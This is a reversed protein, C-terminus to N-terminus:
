GPALIMSASSRGTVVTKVTWGDNVMTVRCVSYGSTNGDDAFSSTLHSQVNASSVRNTSLRHQFSPQVTFVTTVQCDDAEM